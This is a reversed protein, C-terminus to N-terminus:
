FSIFQVDNSVKTSLNLWDMGFGSFISALFAGFSRAMWVRSQLDGLESESEWQVTDAILADIAADAVVQICM